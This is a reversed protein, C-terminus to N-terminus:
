RHTKLNGNKDWPHIDTIAPGVNKSAVSPIAALGPSQPKPQIARPQVIRKFGNWLKGLLSEKSSRAAEPAAASGEAPRSSVPPKRFEPTSSKPILYKVSSGEQIEKKFETAKRANAETEIQTIVPAAKKSQKAAPKKIHSPTQANDSMFSKQSHHHKKHSRQPKHEKKVEKLEPQEPATLNAPKSDLKKPSDYNQEPAEPKYPVGKWNATTNDQTFVPPTWIPAEDVQPRKIESLGLKESSHISEDFKKIIDAGVSYNPKQNPDCFLKGVTLDAM